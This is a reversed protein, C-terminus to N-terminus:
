SGDAKQRCESIVLCQGAVQAEGRCHDGLAAALRGHGVPKVGGRKICRATAATSASISLMALMYGSFTADLDLREDTRPIALIQNKLAEAEATLPISLFM